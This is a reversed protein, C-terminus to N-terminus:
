RHIHTERVIKRVTTHTQPANEQSLMLEGVADIHAETRTTKPRGSGSKRKLSGTDKM